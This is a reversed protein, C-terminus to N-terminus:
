RASKPIPKSKRDTVVPKEYERYVRKGIRWGIPGGLIVGISGFVATAVRVYTLPDGHFMNSLIASGFNAFGVLGILLGFMVGITIGLCCGLPGGNPEELLEPLSKPAPAVAEQAEEDTTDPVSAVPTKAEEDITDPAASAIEEPAALEEQSSAPVPNEESM